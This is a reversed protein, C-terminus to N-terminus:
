IKSHGDAVVTDQLQFIITHGEAIPIGLGFGFSKACQLSFLEDVTEQLMYQRFAKHLNAIVAQETRAQSLWERSEPLM